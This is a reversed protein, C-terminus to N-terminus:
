KRGEATSIAKFAEEIQPLLVPNIHLQQALSGVLTHLGKLADLLAPAAAILRANARDQEDDTQVFCVPGVKQVTSLNQVWEPASIEHGYCGYNFTRRTAEWPGPTHKSTNEQTNM